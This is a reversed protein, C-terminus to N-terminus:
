NCINEKHKTPFNRLVKLAEVQGEQAVASLHEGLSFDVAAIKMLWALPARGYLWLSVSLLKAPDCGHTLVESERCPSLRDMVIGGALESCADIFIVQFVQSIQESLDPTLQHVVLVEISNLKWTEVTEAVKAGVGDDGRLSNGYGIILTSNRVVGLASTPQLTDTTPHREAPYEM